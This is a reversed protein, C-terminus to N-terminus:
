SLFRQIYGDDQVLVCVFQGGIPAFQVGNFRGRLCVMLGRSGVLAGAKSAVRGRHRASRAALLAVVAAAVLDRAVRVRQVAALGGLGLAGVVAGVAADGGGLAGVVVALLRGLAAQTLPALVSSHGCCVFHENNNTQIITSYIHCMTAM